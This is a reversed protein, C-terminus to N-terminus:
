PNLSAKCRVVRGYYKSASGLGPYVGIGNPGFFFDYANNNLTATSTTYYGRSGRLHLTDGNTYGSYIFNNPFHQIRELMTQNDPLTSLTAAQAENNANKYGGLSNSLMGYEGISGGTPLHWGAPCLDGETSRYTPTSYTGRGATASYWNYYNGYSYLSGYASMTYNPRYSAREVTNTTRIRSQDVCAASAESCWGDPAEIADYVASSSASLNTFTQSDVYNHKLTVTPNTSDNNNLPNNTNTTTLTTPVISSGNKHTDALRLNEIMWCDGDSLKAIAYTQNDRTDTLASISSLKAEISWTTEDDDGENNYVAPTLSGVGTGCLQSVKSTDQLEGASKVWVAYLSLGPNDDTYQGATFNIVENPGYFSAESNYEYDFRDSWGAFGYGVRSYNSAILAASTDAASIPQRGMTGEAMTTNAFYCIYGAACTQPQLSPEDYPHILIYKVQGKYTDSPQNNAIFTAYTADIKAGLAADTVSLGTSAKYQAVKTYTDPIAHWSDFGNQISMNSPLYSVTSDTVKNVKMSWSSSADGSSYVGTDITARSNVGVLKVHNANTYSDGTYGIAYISFGNYDNCIVTLTTKGIGNEYESGAAGSYTGPEITASHSDMGSGMMTCAESVVVSANASFAEATTKNSSLIVGSVLVLSLLVFVLLFSRVNQLRENTKNM